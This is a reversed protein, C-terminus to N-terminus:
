KDLLKTKIYPYKTDSLFEDGCKSCLHKFPKPDDKISVGKYEMLGDNCNDCKYNVQYTMAQFEVEM